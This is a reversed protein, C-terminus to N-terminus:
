VHAFSRWIGLKDGSVVFDM